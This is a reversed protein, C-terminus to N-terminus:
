YSKVDRCFFYFWWFNNGFNTLMAEGVQKPEMGQRLYAQSLQQFSNYSTVLDKDFPMKSIDIEHELNGYLFAAEQYLRPMPEGKHLQAYLFFRPWFLQIDKGICAFALTIENLLKSDKNQTHSFYNILYLEVLGEDGDLVSGCHDYIETSFAFEPYKEIDRVLKMDNILPEYREAWERHFTTTKLISIYKRALEKEGAILAAWTLTKAVTVNLGFEVENEISWRTAFNEKGYYMYLLPGCTQVLHVHLSDFVAPEIGGNKYHAFNYGFTGKNLLALNKLEVIERTPEGNINGADELVDDWRQETAARHMRMEKHYNENSFNAKTVLFGCVIAIISGAIIDWKGSAAKKCDIFAFAIMAVFIIAFPVFLILSTDKDNQFLPVGMTWADEIRFSTYCYYAIWPIVVIAIIACAITIITNVPRDGISMCGMIIAGLLGWWGFLLYGILTWLIVYLGNGAGKLLNLSKIHKFGYLAICMFFMGLTERFWYGPVKLYYIWYGIDIISALLACVPILALASWAGKFGFVKVTLYYSLLLLLILITAGLAPYYFFQTLYCGLWIGMGGPVAMKEKFFQSNGVFISRDQATWLYDSNEALLMIYAFAVFALAFICPYFWAYKEGLWKKPGKVSKSAPTKQSTGKTNKLDKNKNM